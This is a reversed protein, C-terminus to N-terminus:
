SGTLMIIHMLIHSYLTFGAAEYSTLEYFPSM